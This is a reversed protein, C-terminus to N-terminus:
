ASRLADGLIASQLTNLSNGLPRREAIRAFLRQCVTIM